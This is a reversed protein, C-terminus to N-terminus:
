DWPSKPMTANAERLVEEMDKAWEDDMELGAILEAFRERSLFMPPKAPGIVAVAEGSQTIEIEEGAEVRALLDFFSLSAEEASIQRARSTPDPSSPRWSMM